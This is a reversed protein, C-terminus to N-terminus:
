LYSKILDIMQAYYGNGFLNYHNMVHYLLYINERYQYGSALPYENNYSYYFDNNFGGFLKTMALDAERNGYYVAPDILVAKGNIDIIYNGAWLDGHLLSAKDESGDLIYDMRRELKLFLNKFEKTVCGKTESLKYQFLLRNQFYFETWNSSYANIQVSSGIFNNERFGYKHFTYKHMKAFNSGFEKMSSTNKTGTPILELLLFEKDVLIVKPTQISNSKAIENLGNSECDFMGNNYGQKLFFSKGTDTIIKGSQAICGGGMFESSIIREGLFDSITQLIRSSM